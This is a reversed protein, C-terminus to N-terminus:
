FQIKAGPYFPLRSQVCRRTFSFVEITSFSFGELRSQRSLVCALRWDEDEM